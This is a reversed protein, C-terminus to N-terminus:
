RKANIQLNEVEPSLTVGNLQRDVFEEIINKLLFCELKTHTTRKCSYCELSTNTFLSVTYYFELKKQRHFYPLINKRKPM